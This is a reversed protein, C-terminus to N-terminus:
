GEGVPAPLVVRVTAILGPRANKKADDESRWSTTRWPHPSDTTDCPPYFNVWRVEGPEPIALSPHAPIGTSGGRLRAQVEPFHKAIYNDAADAGCQERWPKTAEWIVGSLFAERIDEEVAAIAEEVGPLLTSPRTNWAALAKGKGSEVPGDAGCTADVCRYSHHWKSFPVDRYCYEAAANCFPCSKAAEDARPTNTTM